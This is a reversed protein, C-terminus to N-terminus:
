KFKAGGGRYPWERFKAYSRLIKDNCMSYINLSQKMFPSQCTVAMNNVLTLMNKTTTSTEVITLLKVGIKHVGGWLYIKLDSPILPFFFFFLTEKYSKPNM